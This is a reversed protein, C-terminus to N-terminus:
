KDKAAEADRITEIIKQKMKKAREIAEEHKRISEKHMEIDDEHNKVSEQHHDRLAQLQEQQLRRFYEEERAAEMKGFAGGASRVSGGGGGGKGEGSGYESAMARIQPRLFVLYNRVISLRRGVILSAM